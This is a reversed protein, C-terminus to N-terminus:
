DIVVDKGYKIWVDKQNRATYLIWVDAKSLINGDDGHYLIKM